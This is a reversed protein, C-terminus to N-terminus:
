NFNTVNRVNLTEREQQVESLIITQYYKKRFLYFWKRLQILNQARSRSKKKQNKSRAQNNKDECFELQEATRSIKLIKKNLIKFRIYKVIKM